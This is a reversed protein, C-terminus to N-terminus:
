KSVNERTALIVVTLTSDLISMKLLKIDVIIEEMSIEIIFYIHRRKRDIVKTTGVLDSLAVFWQISKFLGISLSM